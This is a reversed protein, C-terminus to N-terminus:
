FRRIRECVLGTPKKRDGRPRAVAASDYLRKNSSRGPNLRADESVALPGFRLSSRHLSLPFPRRPKGRSRNGPTAAHRSIARRQDGWTWHFFAVYILPFGVWSHLACSICHPGDIGGRVHATQMWQLVSDPPPPPHFLGSSNILSQLPFLGLLGGCRRGSAMYLWRVPLIFLALGLPRPWKFTARQTIQSKALANFSSPPRPKTVVVLGSKMVWRGNKISADHKRPTAKSPRRPRRFLRPSRRRTRHAKRSNPPTPPPPACPKSPTMGAKVFCASNARTTGLCPRLADSGM